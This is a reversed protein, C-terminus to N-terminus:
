FLARKWLSAVVTLMKSELEVKVDVEASEIATRPAADLKASLTVEAVIVDPPAARVIAPASVPELTTLTDDPKSDVALSLTAKPEDAATVIRQTDADTKVDVLPPFTTMRPLGVAVTSM